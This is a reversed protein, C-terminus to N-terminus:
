EDVLCHLTEFGLEGDFEIEDCWDEKYLLSEDPIGGDIVIGCVQETELPGSAHKGLLAVPIKSTINVKDESTLGDVDTLPIIEDCCCWCCWCKYEM